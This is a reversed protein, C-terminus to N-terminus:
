GCELWTGAIFLMQVPRVEDMINETDYNIYIIFLLHFYRTIAQEKEYSWLLYIKHPM